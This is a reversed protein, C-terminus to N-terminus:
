HVPQAQLGVEGEQKSGLKGVWVVRCPIINLPDDHSIVEVAQGRRLRSNLRLRFGERSRDLILCPIRTPRSALDIVVSAPTKTVVRKSRRVQKAHPTSM